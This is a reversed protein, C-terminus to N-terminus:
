KLFLYSNKTLLYSLVAVNLHNFMKQTANYFNESLNLSSYFISYSNYVHVPNQM